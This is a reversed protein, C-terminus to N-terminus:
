GDRITKIAAFGFKEYFGKTHQSTHLTVTTIGATQRALRLRAQTLIRGIGQGHYPQAVMGWSLFASKSAELIQLGGCAIIESGIEFVLYPRQFVTKDLFETFIAGEAPAFFKPVNTDFVRLCGYKDEARYPRSRVAQM